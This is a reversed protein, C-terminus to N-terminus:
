ALVARRGERAPWVMAGVLLISFQCMVVSNGGFLTLKSPNPANERKEVCNQAELAWDWSKDM